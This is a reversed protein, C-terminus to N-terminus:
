ETTNVDAAPDTADVMPPAAQETALKNMYRTTFHLQAGGADFGLTPKETLMGHSACFDVVMPMTENQFTPNNFLDMGAQPTKYFKTEEVVVKMDEVSLSSFKAGLAQLTADSTASGELLNNVEYFAELIASAFSQGGKRQLVDEGVVVMDIIEEPISKSDFLRKVDSRTRETQLVFPNWVVISNINDQKTQLAQAAQAPDMQKFPYDAPDKGAIELNREFTYQSVSSELGFTNVGKLDDLSNIGAVLCADAGDSTSTPLVAVSNRGNALALIDMNTICVADVTGNGYATMCQEYDMMKLTIDINWKQEIRGRKGEAMDILGEEHAVGFVSWSPYESWALSFSGQPGSVSALKPGCGASVIISVALLWSFNLLYKMDIEKALHCM